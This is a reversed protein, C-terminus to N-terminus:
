IVTKTFSQILITDIETKADNIKKIIDSYEMKIRKKDVDLQNSAKNLADKSAILSVIELRKTEILKYM